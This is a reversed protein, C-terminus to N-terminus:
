FHVQLSVISGFYLNYKEQQVENNSM